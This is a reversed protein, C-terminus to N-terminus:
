TRCTAAHRDRAGGAPDDSFINSGVQTFLSQSYRSYQGFAIEEQGGGPNFLTYGQIGEGPVYDATIFGQWNFSWNQGFNSFPLTVLNGGDYSLHIYVDPGIPPHYGIPTDDLTPTTTYLNIDAVPMGTTGGFGSGSGSGGGGGGSGGGGGAGGGAGGGGGNGGGGASGCPPPPPGGGVGGSPAGSGAKNKCPGGPDGGSVDGKGFVKAAEEMGVSTWGTPLPGNAVLYYGSGEEDLAKESLWTENGFTPDISHILGNKEEVLAAYHNLKWNVVAPLIVKAGPSRKAIQMNMGLEESMDWVKDLSYGDKTSKADKIISSDAQKSNQFKLISQLAFPGCFFAKDPKNKMIWLVRAANEAYRGALGSPHRAQLEGLLTQATEMRGVRCNMRVAEALARDALSAARYSIKEKGGAVCALYFSRLAKSFYGNKYLLIGNNLEAALVWRSQPHSKVFNELYDVRADTKDSLTQQIAQALDHNENEQEPGSTPYFPTEFARFNALEQDTPDDSLTNFSTQLGKSGSLMNRTTRAYAIKTTLLISGVFAPLGIRLAPAAFEELLGLAPVLSNGFIMVASLISSILKKFRM